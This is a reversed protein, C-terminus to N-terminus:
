THPILTLDAEGLSVLELNLRTRLSLTEGTRPRPAPKAPLEAPEFVIRGEPDVDASIADGHQIRGSINDKSM